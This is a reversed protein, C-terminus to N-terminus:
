ILPERLHLSPLERTLELCPSPEPPPANETPDESKCRGGSASKFSWGAPAQPLGRRRQTIPVAQGQM